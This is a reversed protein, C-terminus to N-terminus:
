CSSMFEEMDYEICRVEKVQLGKLDADTYDANPDGGAPVLRTAVKHSCGLFKGLPEPEGMKVNDRIAKWGAALNCKPGSLKFDDVYVVLM